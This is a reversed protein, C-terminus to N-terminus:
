VGGPEVFYEPWWAMEHPSQSFCCGQKQPQSNGNPHGDVWLLQVPARVAVTETVLDRTRHM